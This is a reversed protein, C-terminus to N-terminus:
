FSSDKKTTTLLKKEQCNEEATFRPTEFFIISGAQGKDIIVMVDYKITTHRSSTHYFGSVLFCREIM